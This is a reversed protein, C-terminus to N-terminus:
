ENWIAWSAEAQQRFMECGSITAAGREAGLELFRTHTPNYILDFLIHHETLCSYDIQPAEDTHPYMGVPTANVILRNSAIVESTVQAYSLVGNGERRSVSTVVVGMSRLVYVVAAAAGGTGLVLAKAGRLDYGELSKRIGVVDTNYGHLTGDTGVKVCNVAGVAAAEDSISALYPLIQKKYPITVNFGELTNRLPEVGTIDAIEYLSYEGCIGETAFKDTFYRASASHGLPYGILGFKRMTLINNCLTRYLHM